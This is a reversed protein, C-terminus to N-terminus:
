PAATAQIHGRGCSVIEDQHPTFYLNYHTDTAVPATAGLDIAVGGSAVAKLDFFGYENFFGLALKSGDASLASANANGNMPIGNNPSSASAIASRRTEILTAPDLHVIEENLAILLERGDATLEMGRIFPGYAGPSLLTTWSSAGAIVAAIRAPSPDIGSAVYCARREADFEALSAFPVPAAVDGAAAYSAKAVVVLEANTDVATGATVITVPYRGPALAPYRARIRTAGDVTYSGVASFGGFRVDTITV